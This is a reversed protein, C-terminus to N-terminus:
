IGVSADMDKMYQSVLVLGAVAKKVLFYNVIM